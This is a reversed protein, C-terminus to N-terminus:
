SANFNNSLSNNDIKFYHLTFINCIILLVISIVCIIVKLKSNM